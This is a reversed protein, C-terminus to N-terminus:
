KKIIKFTKVEKNQNTIRLFYISAPFGSVIINTENGINREAKLVKGSMDVIEYDLKLDSLNTMNLTLVDTSPNPFVKLDKILESFDISSLIESIEYPQQVGQAVSGNTGTNTTYVIQGVSYSISGNTGSLVGGSSNVSEQAFCNSMSLIFSAITVLSLRKNKKM